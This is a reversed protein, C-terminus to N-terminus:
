GFTFASRHLFCEFLHKSRDGAGEKLLCGSESLCFIAPPHLPLDTGNEKILILSIGPWGPPVALAGTGSTPLGPNAPESGSHPCPVAQCAM